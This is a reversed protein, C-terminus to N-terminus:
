MTLLSSESCMKMRFVWLIEANWRRWYHWRLTLTRNLPRMGERSDTLYSGRYDQLPNTMVSRYHKLITRLTHVYLNPDRNSRGNLRFVSKLEDMWNLSLVGSLIRGNLFSVKKTETYCYRKGSFCCKRSWDPCVVECKWGDTGGQWGKKQLTQGELSWDGVEWCRRVKNM